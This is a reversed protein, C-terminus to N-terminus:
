DLRELELRTYVQGRTRELMSVLARGRPTLWRDEGEKFALASHRWGAEALRKLGKETTSANAGIYLGRSALVFKTREHMLPFQNQLQDV